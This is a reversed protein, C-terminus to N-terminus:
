LIYLSQSWSLRFPILTFFPRYCLVLVCVEKIHDIKTKNEELECWKRLEPCGWVTLRGLSTLKPISEPLSTIGKCFKISLIELSVCGGLEEPLAQIGLCNTLLLSKLSTLGGLWPPLEQIGSCDWLSLSQLSTLDGLWPSLEKIDSCHNFSLSQLSTLARTVEPSIRLDKCGYINLESLAPLHHLLKWQHLPEMCPRVNLARVMPASSTSCVTHLVGDEWQSLVDDSDEISWTNKVRPPCPKVRLKPCRIIALNKLGPFMFEDVVSESCSYTTSWEKLNEMDSITLEELRPFVKMRDSCFGKDIKTISPMAELNLYKLNELEGLPPINSCQSLGKLEVTVLNPLYIAIGTLWTPFSVNNYHQLVFRKLSIPPVLERLLEMHEVYRRTRRTWDLTLDELSQKEMLEIRRAEEISKVNELRSIELKPPNVDKLLILNSSQEGEVDHVMFTPLPILKKNIPITRCNSGILFKLNVMRDMNTPLEQLLQCDTLDLTHLKQLICFSDPLSEFYGHSLDLHELNSLASIKDLVSHASVGRKFDSVKMSASLNLYRLKTLECIVEYLGKSGSFLHKCNSLNLHQLKTLSCLAEPIAKLRQCYSLDLHVLSGLKGFSEPLKDIVKCCSEPLALLEDSERLSLYILKSLKTICSPIVRDKIGPANLYRLLKLQGISSPLKKLSSEGLELVRLYKATSFGISCQGTKGSGLFRLARIKDPYTVYSSLPKSCDALFAYRCNSAGCKIFEKSADLLEDGMVSIVLDHVLDHM